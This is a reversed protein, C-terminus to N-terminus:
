KYEVMYSKIFDLNAKSVGIEENLYNYVKESLTDGNPYEDLATAYASMMGSLHRPHHDVEAFNTLLYDRLLDEKSVELLANLLYTVAGTRDAGVQCHYILPYNSSDGLVDFVNKIADKNDTLFGSGGYQMGYRYYNVNDGLISSTKSVENRLDIETKIGLGNVITDIGVPTLYQENQYDFCYSRYVLGQKVRGGDLTSWGGVDRANSLGEAYIYRPSKDTTTFSSIKSIVTNNEDAVSVRWYYRTGVKLNYVRYVNTDAFFEVPESMDANESIELTYGSSSYKKDAVWEFTVPKPMDKKIGGSAYEFVNEYSDNLYELMLDNHLEVGDPVKLLSISQTPYIAPILPKMTNLSDWVFLKLSYRDAYPKDLSIKLSVINTDDGINGEAIASSVLKTGDYVGALVAISGQYVENKFEVEIDFDTLNYPSDVAEGNSKITYSSVPSEESEYDMVGNFEFDGNQILNKTEGKKTLSIDDIYWGETDGDTLITFAFNGSNVEIDKSYKSWAGDTDVLSFDKIKTNQWGGDGDFTVAQMSNDTRTGVGWFSLTYTGDLMGGDQRIAIKHGINSNDAHRLLVSHSGSHALEDTVCSFRLTKDSAPDTHDTIWGSFYEEYANTYQPAGNFDFGCNKILNQTEGQKTLSVDDIYWGETDGDTLITFAYNGSNVEIDKSYKSWIGDTDVVSFQNINIVQWDTGAFTVAQKGNPLTGTAWFSVTYTSGDSAPFDYRAGILNGNKTSDAHRVLLSNNGGHARENTVCLFRLSGDTSVGANDEQWGNFYSSYADTYGPAKNDFGDNVILNQATGQKTLSIDDAYFNAGWGVGGISFQATGSETFTVTQTYHTFDGSTGSKVFQGSADGGLRCEKWIGGGSVQIFPEGSGSYWFSIDYTDATVAVNQSVGIFKWASGQENRIHVSNTGSYARETSIASSQDVSIDAVSNYRQWAYLYADSTNDFGGNVILNQATGQKTLSIDDAYFNAGWGVGGVKFKATGIETFTVTQTYHTFRGSTGNNVFQGSADGGLRYEKWIGGGSVQIFPEGSGSYWFSIDYTDASVAVNQSVGIFKWAAGQENRIHVSNTGSYARDTSIASSQDVSLDATSDCRAWGYLYSDDVTAAMAMQPLLSLAMILSLLLAMSKKPKKM